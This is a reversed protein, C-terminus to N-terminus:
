KLKLAELAAFRPDKANRECGCSGRNLDIGCRPCLGKCDERCLWVGPLALVLQEYLLPELDLEEGRYVLEDLDEETLEVDRSGSAARGERAPGVALDFEQRVDKEFDALCRDCRVTLSAGVRGRLLVTEGALAVRLDVTIPSSFALGLEDTGLPPAEPGPPSVLREVEKELRLGKEPIERIKLTMAGM